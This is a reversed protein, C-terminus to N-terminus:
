YYRCGLCSNTPDSQGKRTVPRKESKMCCQHLHRPVQSQEIEHLCRQLLARINFSAGPYHGRRRSQDPLCHLILRAPQGVRCLRRVDEDM